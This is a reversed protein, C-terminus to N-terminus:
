YTSTKYCTFPVNEHLRIDVFAFKRYVQFIGDTNEFQGVCIQYLHLTRPSAVAIMPLRTSVLPTPIVAIVAIAPAEMMLMSASLRVLMM